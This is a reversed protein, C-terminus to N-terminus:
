LWNELKMTPEWGLLKKAKSNDACSVRVEAPRAPIFEFKADEGGVLRVLEHINYNTGTGINLVEGFCESNDTEMARINADVVDGVYTFDRRQNGDGIITMPYGNKHQRQFLGIVPAYQGRLPQNEGYVNFYRFSITELGYMDWYMKCMQEGAVKSISYANLCDPVMSEKVPAKNKLGYSASTSSYVVRKVKNVRAAQLVNSTGLVNTEMTQLPNHIAPQIRAEAALHFIVDAGKTVDALFDYDNVSEKYNETESNWHFTEHADTSENDIVIVDHGEELLRTTLNSGIFGAGGTVVAKM